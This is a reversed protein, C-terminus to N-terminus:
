HRHIYSAHNFVLATGRICYDCIFSVDYPARGASNAILGAGYPHFLNESAITYVNNDVNAM